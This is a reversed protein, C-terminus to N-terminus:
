QRLLPTHDQVRSTRHNPHSRQVFALAEARPIRSTM